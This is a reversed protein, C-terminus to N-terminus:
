HQPNRDHTAITPKLNKLQEDILAEAREVKARSERFDQALEALRKALDLKGEDWIELHEWGEYQIIKPSPYYLMREIRIHINSQNPITKWFWGKKCQLSVILDMGKRALVHRLETSHYVFRQEKM